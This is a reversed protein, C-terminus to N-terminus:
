ELARKYFRVTSRGYSREDIASLSGHSQPLTDESPYHILLLGGPEVLGGDAISRILDSKHSYPFPPDCFVVSYARECRVVFREVPVCHCDIREPAISVNRILLGLKARDREVCAVPSAGRSAAELAIIGSGSFMDLFSRGDLPGLISFLSERMRDMAPRIEFDGKPVEIRRGKLTGGTIRLGGM